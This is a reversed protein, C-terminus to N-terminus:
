DDDDYEEEPADAPDLGEVAGYQIAARSPAQPREEGPVSTPLDGREGESGEFLALIHECPGLNLLNERFFACGCRGFIIRGTDGVVVEVETQEAVRGRVRWDRYVIERVSPGDPTKFRRTKRTEDCTCSTVRVRDASLHASANERRLDPPFLQAEDPPERFLERHRYERREVDFIVQGRRCLRVMLGSARPLDIGLADSVAPLGLRVRERVLKLARDLMPDDGAAARALLDFGGTGTWGRASWGSLGLLFTMSPLRVAYFSPLARGKLHVDVHEAFPLLGEILKLRRRGWVRITKTEDYGHEAGRLHVVHEWPELVLRAHQGPLLEYRLARPSVKAKTYRMYRIASLLDIARVRLRTGPMAMAGQLQLFGRVWEDPLDVKREFRGGAGTTEVGFGEPGIAFTTRRSSRM